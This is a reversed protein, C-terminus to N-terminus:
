EYNKKRKTNIKKNKKLNQNTTSFNKVNKKNKTKTPLFKKFNKTTKTKITQERFGNETLVINQFVINHQQKIKQLSKQEKEDYFILVKGEKGMRGTRGSRHQFFELNKKPLDYHIVWEIDLDLGRAMLDSTLIYQYKMKKIENFFYKRKQIKLDSSFNLINFNFTKLFNYIKSQEEKKSVFILASYPNLNKMLHKLDNLRKEQYSLLTYYKLNLKQKDNTNLFLSKGFYKNIFPNMNSTISASFLLIKPKWSTLLVDLLSLSSQEFLMDAEDLVLFSSKAFKITKFVTYYEFLKNLTTIILPSQKKELNKITKQKDMGGYLIKVQSSRQEIQKIMQFIQFILENNPAIIIAQTKNQRWDIESLIPLLYAHTKGTGTPSIGVINLPKQFNNFLEEQIPTITEFKLQKLKNKIYNTM